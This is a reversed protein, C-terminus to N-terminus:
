QYYDRVSNDNLIKWMNKAREPEVSNVYSVHGVIYKATGYLVGALCHEYEEESDFDERYVGRIRKVHEVFGYKDIYHLQLRLRKKFKRPIRPYEDFVTLGTVYQNAGRKQLKVKDDNIEFNNAEIISRIIPVDPSADGSFSMDDGYRSYTIGQKAAYEELANDVRYLCHNSLDPSTHLGQRLRGDVSAISSIFVAVEESVGLRILAAKVQSTTIVDFFDKIDVHLIYKKKTHNLANTYTSKHKVFGHAALNLGDQYDRLMEYIVKHANRLEVSICFYISRYGGRTKKRKSVEYYSKQNNSLSYEDLTKIYPDLKKRIYNLSKNLEKM